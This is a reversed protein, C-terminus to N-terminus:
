LEPGEWEWVFPKSSIRPFARKARNNAKETRAWFMPISPNHISYKEENLDNKLLDFIRKKNFEETEIISNRNIRIAELYDKNTLQKKIYGRDKSEKSLETGPLPNAVYITNITGYKNTLFKAFEISDKIEDLKEGPFGLVFFVICPIDLKDCLQVANLISSNKLNKKIINLRVNENGSEAAISISTLGSDVMLKLMEEDLTDARVGNPTDWTINLDAISKFLKKAREKNLTLNDDEFHFHKIGFQKICKEMLKKVYEVSYARHAYGVQSHVSCFTCNYPCGRSTFIPMVKKNIPNNRWRSYYKNNLIKDMNLLEYAPFPLKDLEKIFPRNPNIIIKSGDWFSIGKINEIDRIKQTKVDFNKLLEAFTDEGEGRSMIDYVGKKLLPIYIEPLTATVGGLIILTEKKISKVIRAIETADSEFMSFISSIGVIDPNFENVCKILEEKTKGFRVFDQFEERTEDELCDFIKTDFGEQLCISAISALGCPIHSQYESELQKPYTQWPNILLIKGKQNM